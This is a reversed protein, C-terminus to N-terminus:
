EVTIVMLGTGISLELATARPQKAVAQFFDTLKKAHSLTNDAIIIGGPTILRMAQAFYLPYEQKNADLFIFDFSPSFSKLIEVADGQIVEITESLGEDAINKKALQFREEFFEITTIKGGYKKAVKGMLIASYGNSTGVELIRKPKQAHIIAQLVQIAEPDINWYEARSEMM